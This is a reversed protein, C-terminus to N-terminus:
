LLRGFYYSYGRDVPVHHVAVIGFLAIRLLFSEAQQVHIGEVDLHLKALTAIQPIIKLIPPLHMLPIGKQYKLLNDMSQVIQMRLPNHM